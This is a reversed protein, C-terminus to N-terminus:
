RRAARLSAVPDRDTQRETGWMAEKRAPKLMEGSGSEAM